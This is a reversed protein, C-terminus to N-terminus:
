EFFFNFEDVQKIHDNVSINLKPIVKSHKFFIMFKSKSVNLRLKNSHLWTTIKYAEKNINQEMEKVNNKDHFNELTSVLTTDDAYPDFKSTVSKLDSIVINFM